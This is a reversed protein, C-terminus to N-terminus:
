DHQEYEHKHTSNHKKLSERFAVGIYWDVERHSVWCGDEASDKSFLISFDSFSWFM